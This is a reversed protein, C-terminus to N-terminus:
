NNQLAECAAIASNIFSEEYEDLVRALSNDHYLHWHCSNGGLYLPEYRVSYSSDKIPFNTIM